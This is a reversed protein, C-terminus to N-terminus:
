IFFRLMYNFRLTILHPPCLPRPRREYVGDVDVDICHVYIYLRKAPGLDNLCTVIEDIHAVHKNEVLDPLMQINLQLKASDLDDGYQQCISILRQLTATYIV